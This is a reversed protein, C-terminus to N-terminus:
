EKIRGIANRMILVHFPMIMSLYVRGLRNHRRVWTTGYAHKGDTLISIRFDLHKDNFGLIVEADNRTEIPFFGITEDDSLDTRLGFPTVIKNRLWMLGSVWFPFSMAQKAAQNVDVSTKCRYCDLFDGTQVYARLLSHPPLNSKVVKGM